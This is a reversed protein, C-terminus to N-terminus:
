VGKTSLSNLEEEMSVGASELMENKRVKITSMMGSVLIFAPFADGSTFNNKLYWEMVSQQYFPAISKLFDEVLRKVRENREQDKDEGRYENDKGANEKYDNWANMSVGVRYHKEKDQMVTLLCIGRQDFDQFITEM